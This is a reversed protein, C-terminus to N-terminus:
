RASEVNDALEETSNTETTSCGSPDDLRQLFTIEDGDQEPWGIRGTLEIVRSPEFTEAFDVTAWGDSSEHRARVVYPGNTNQCSWPVSASDVFREDHGDLQVSEEAVVTGAAEIQVTVTHPATDQNEVSLGVLQAHREEGIIGSLTSCGAFSSAAAVCM